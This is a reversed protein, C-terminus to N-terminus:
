ITKRNTTGEEEEEEAEAADAVVEADAAEDAAEAEAARDRKVTTETITRIITRPNKNMSPQMTIPFFTM